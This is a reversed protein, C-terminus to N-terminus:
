ELERSVGAATIQQVYGLSRVAWSLGRDCGRWPWASAGVLLVPGRWSVIEGPRGGSRSSRGPEVACASNLINCSRM